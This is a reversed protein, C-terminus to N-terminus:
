TRDIRTAIEIATKARLRRTLRILLRRLTDPTPVTQQAKDSM